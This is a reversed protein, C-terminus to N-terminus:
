GAGKRVREYSRRGCARRTSRLHHVGTGKEKERIAVTAELGDLEPMQVDMLVVDFSEREVQAIAEHGNRALVVRHGRKELLRAALAEHGSKAARVASFPGTAADRAQLPLSSNRTLLVRLM